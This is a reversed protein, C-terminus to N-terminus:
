IQQKRETNEHVRQPLPMGYRVRRRNTYFSSVQEMRERERELERKGKRGYRESEEKQADREKM